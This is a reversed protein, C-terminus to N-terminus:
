KKGGVKVGAMFLGYSGFENKEAWMQAVASDAYGMSNMLGLFEEFLGQGRAPTEVPTCAKIRVSGPASLKYGNRALIDSLTRRVGVIDQRDQPRIGPAGEDPINVLAKAVQACTERPTSNAM